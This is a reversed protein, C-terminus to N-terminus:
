GLAIVATAPPEVSRAIAPPYGTQPLTIWIIIVALAMVPLLFLSGEPGTLGGSLFTRGVPHTAFLHGQVMLGSDAVGYLYSQAWDWTCHFGIAWWLSGTRWLSFCFMFGALGASLLGLPSEGPNSSHSYGFAFSLVLAATWFGLAHAQRARFLWRYIAAFGRTLTFQLYGRTLYEELLGVLLFGLLWIAGYRFTAAGFLLRADFVLMGTARLILVLLSLFVFGWGLGALFNPLSRKPAFGYVSTPRREIKGMIWTSLAVCLFPIGENLLASRPKMLTTASQTTHTRPVFKSMLFVSGAALAVFLVLFLLIGWGARLGEAGLFITRISSSPRPPGVPAPRDETHSDAVLEAPATFDPPPPLESHSELQDPM